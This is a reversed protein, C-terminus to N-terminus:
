RAQRTSRAAARARARECPEFADLDCGPTLVFIRDPPVAYSRRLELGEAELIPAVLLQVRDATSMPCRRQASLAVAHASLRPIPAGGGSVFAVEDTLGIPGKTLPELEDGVAVDEFWRPEPGRPFESLVQARLKDLESDTWPHPIVLEATGQSEKDGKSRATAREFNVV